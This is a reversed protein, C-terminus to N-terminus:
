MVIKTTPEVNRLADLQRTFEAKTKEDLKPALRKIGEKLDGLMKIYQAELKKGEPTLSVPEPKKAALASTAIALIMMIWVRRITDHKKM